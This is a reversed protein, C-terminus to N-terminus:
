ANHGRVRGATPSMGTWRKFARSFNAPDSYGLLYTIENISTHKEKIYSLALERRTNDLVEKFSSGEQKLKRQLSRVSMHLANAIDHENVKGAPMSQVLHARVQNVVHAQDLRALYDDIIHDCARAMSTNATPLDAEMVSTSLLVSLENTSFEVRVGFYNNFEEVCPPESRRLRVRLPRFSAGASMRCMAILLVMMADEEADHMLQMDAPIEVEFLYGTSGKDLHVEEPSIAAIDYYRILRNFADKLSNSALWGYGLAHLHSPHWFNALKLMFCPDGTIEIALEHLRTVPGATYRADQDKLKAPDLGAQIFIGTADYDNAELASWLVLTSSALMTHTTLLHKPM